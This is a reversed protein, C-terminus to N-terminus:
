EDDSGIPKGDVAVVVDGSRLGAKAAPSGPIVREILAGKTGDLKLQKAKAETLDGLYVGLYGSQQMREMEARLEDARARQDDQAVVPISVLVCLLVAQIVHRPM